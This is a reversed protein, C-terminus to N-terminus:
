SRMGETGHDTQFFIIGVLRDVSGEVAPVKPAQRKAGPVRRAMPEPCTM